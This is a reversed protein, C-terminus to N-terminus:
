KLKSIFIKGINNVNLDNYIKKLEDIEYIEGPRMDDGIRLSLYISDLNLKLLKKIFKIYFEEKIEEIDSSIKFKRLNPMKNINNYINNIVESTLDYGCYNSISFKILSKFIVNCKKTFLPFGDKLNMTQNNISFKASKLKEFPGCFFKIKKKAYATLNIKNIKFNPNEIIELKAKHKYKKRFKICPSFYLKFDLLNPFKNQLDFLICDNDKNNWHISINTVSTNIGKIKSFKDSTIDTTSFIITKLSKLSILKEIMKIEKEETNNHPYVSVEELSELCNSNINIFYNNELSLKKLKNFSNFDIFSNDFGVLNCDELEPFKLLSNDKPFESKEITLYKLNLSSKESLIINKCYFLSFKKLNKLKITFLSNIEFNSLILIELLQFNNIKEFIKLNINKIYELELHLYILNKGFNDISFLTKYFYDNNCKNKNKLFYPTYSKQKIIIKKILNYNIKYKYLNDIENPQEYIFQLSLIKSSKNSNNIFSISDDDDELYYAFNFKNLFIRICFYKFVESEFIIDFFPSFVDVCLDSFIHAMDKYDKILEEIKKKLTNILYKEIINFDLKYRKFFSKLAEKYVIKLYIKDGEFRDFYIYKNLDINIKNIYREQYDFLTLGIKNQFFKSYNFLKFKLNTYKIYEFLSNLIYKSKIRKLLSKNNM